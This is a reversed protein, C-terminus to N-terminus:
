LGVSKVPRSKRRPFTSRSIPVAPAYSNVELKPLVTEKLYFSHKVAELHNEAKDVGVCNMFVAGHKRGWRVCQLAAKM